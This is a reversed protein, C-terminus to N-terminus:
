RALETARAVPAFSRRHLPCPGLRALARRHAATPYGKHQAFGYAPYWADARAMYEDRATKALISAAGIARDTADGRVIAVAEVPGGLGGLEPLRDGDVRLRRPLVALALVARRMALHTAQLIDLADIEAPDAWGIGFGLASRRIAAALRQRQAQALTKSDAIGRPGRGRPLIVAAAVVPGALPGRGAEDVGAVLDNM